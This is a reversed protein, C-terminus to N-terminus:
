RLTPWSHWWMMWATARIVLSTIIKRLDPKISARIFSSKPFIIIQGLWNKALGCPGAQNDMTCRRCGLNPPTPLACLEWAHCTNINLKNHEHFVVSTSYKICCRRSSGSNRSFGSSKSFQFIEIKIRKSIKKKKFYLFSHIVGIQSPLSLLYGFLNLFSINCLNSM